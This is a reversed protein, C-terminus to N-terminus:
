FYKVIVQPLEELSWEGVDVGHNYWKYDKVPLRWDDGYDARIFEEANCPVHFLYGLLVTACINKLRPYFYRLTFLCM